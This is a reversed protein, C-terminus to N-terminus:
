KMEELAQKRAVMRDRTEDLSDQVKRLVPVLDHDQKAKKDAKMHQRTAESIEEMLKDRSAQLQKVEPTDGYKLSIKALVDDTAEIESLDQGYERAMVKHFNRAKIRNVFKVFLFVPFSSVIMELGKFDVASWKIDFPSINTELYAFLHGFVMLFILAIPLSWGMYKDPNFKSPVRATQNVVQDLHGRKIELLKSKADSTLPGCYQCGEDEFVRYHLHEAAGAYKNQNGRFIELGPGLDNAGSDVSGLRAHLDNALIIESSGLSASDKGAVISWFQNRTNAQRTLSRVHNNQALGILPIAIMAVLWCALVTKAFSIYKNTYEWSRSMLDSM